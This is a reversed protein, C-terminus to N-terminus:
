IELLVLFICMIVVCLFGGGGEGGGVFWRKGDQRDLFMFIQIYTFVIIKGKTKYPDKNRVNLSSCLSYLTQSCAASSFIQVSTPHLPLLSSFVAYHLAEYSANKVLVILIMLDLLLHIPYADGM